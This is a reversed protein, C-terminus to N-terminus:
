GPKGDRSQSSLETPRRAALLTVPVHHLFIRERVETVKMRAERGVSIVGPATDGSSSSRVSGKNEKGRFILGTTISALGPISKSDFETIIPNRDVPSITNGARM